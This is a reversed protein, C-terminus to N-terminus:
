NNIVMKLLDSVDYWYKERDYIYNPMDEPMVFVKWRGKELIPCVANLGAKNRIDLLLKQSDTM